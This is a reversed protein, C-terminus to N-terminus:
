NSIFNLKWRFKWHRRIAHSKWVGCVLREYIACPKVSCAFLPNSCLLECWQLKSQHCVGVVISFWGGHINIYYIYIKNHIHKPYSPKQNQTTAQLDMKCHQSSRHTQLDSVPLSPDHIRFHVSSMSSKSSCSAMCDRPNTTVVLWTPRGKWPWSICKREM